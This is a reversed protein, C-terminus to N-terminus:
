IRWRNYSRNKGCQITSNYYNRFTEIAFDNLVILAAGGKHRSFSLTDNRVEIGPISFQILDQINSFETNNEDAVFTHNTSIFTNEKEKKAKGIVLVEDLQNEIPVNFEVYKKFINEKIIDSTNKVSDIKKRPSFSIKPSSIELSDLVIEGKSKNKRDRVNVMIPTDGLMILNDFSFRGNSDTVDMRMTSKDQNMYYLIVKNNEKTASSFLRKVKGSVSFGKEVKYLNNPNLQPNKKWLFDRWGQTLLLLDLHAIRNKNSHNFYYGSNYVKGKIDSEMLFYSSINKFNNSSVDANSADIATVSLNAIQPQNYTDKISVKVEVKEKPSYSQKNSTLTIQLNNNKEIYILRESHPREKEDFITVHAIGEPLIDVPILFPTSLKKSTVLGEFYTIGRTKIIIKFTSNTNSFTNENTNIFGIKKNDINKISLTYGIKNVESIPFTFMNRKKDSIKAVYKTNSQPNLKFKGMGSYAAKLSAVQTNNADFIGGSVEIPIGNKDTAKFAIITPVNEILSVM